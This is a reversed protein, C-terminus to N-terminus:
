LAGESCFLGSANFTVPLSQNWTFGPAPNVIVAASRTTSGGSGTCTISYTTSVTPSVLLSGSARSPSFGVGSCSTANTSLWSLTSSAGPAIGRPHASFSLTPATPSAAALGIYTPGSQRTWGILDDNFSVKWWTLSNASAPGDIVTGRKGLAESGIASTSNSPTSYAYVKGTAVVTMGIALTPRASLTVRVSRSASGGAGTCTIGYTTTAIPIIVLSGSTGSPSFGRGTGSCATANASTWTLKTSEPYWVSTRSASLTVTPAAQSVQAGPQMLGNQVASSQGKPISTPSASPTVTPPEASAQASAQMLDDQVAWRALGDKYSVEWWTSGDASAPGGIIGGKSGPAVAGVRPASMSPSQHM